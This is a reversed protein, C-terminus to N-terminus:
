LNVYFWSLIVAFKTDDYAEHCISLLKNRRM